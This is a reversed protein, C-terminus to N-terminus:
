AEPVGQEEVMMAAKIGGQGKSDIVYDVGLERLMAVVSRDFAHVAVPVNREKCHWALLNNTDEIQLASVVLKANALSADEMVSEYEINGLMTLCPLGHLKQSDTDIALVTEGREHLTRAIARGLTNMGIVIIHGRMPRPQDEDDVQSSFNISVQEPMSEAISVEHNLIHCPTPVDAEGAVIHVGEDESYQHAATILDPAFASESSTAVGDVADASEETQQDGTTILVVGIVAALVVLGIGILSQKSM